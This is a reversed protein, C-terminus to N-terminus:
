ANKVTSYLHTSLPCVCWKSFSWYYVELSSIPIVCLPTKIIPADARYRGMWAIFHYHLIRLMPPKKTVVVFYKESKVGNPYFVEAIHNQFIPKWGYPYGTFNDKPVNLETFNIKPRIHMRCFCIKTFDIRSFSQSDRTFSVSQFLINGINKERKVIVSITPKFNLNWIINKLIQATTIYVIESITSYSCMQVVKEISPTTDAVNKIKIKIKSEKLM